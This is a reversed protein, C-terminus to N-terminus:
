NNEELQLLNMLPRLSPLARDYDTRLRTRCEHWDVFECRERQPLHLEDHLLPEILRLDWDYFEQTLAGIPLNPIPLQASKAERASAVILRWGRDHSILNLPAIRPLLRREYGRHALYTAVGLCLSVAVVVSVRVNQAFSICWLFSGLLIIVAPLLYRPGVLFGFLALANPDRWERASILSLFAFFAIVSFVILTSRALLAASSRGACDRIAFIVAIAAAVLVLIGFPWASQVVDATTPPNVIVGFVSLLAFPVYVGALGLAHGVGFHYALDHHPDHPTVLMLMCLGHATTLIVLIAFAATLNRQQNAFRDLKRLFTGILLILLVAGTGCVTAFGLGLAHMSAYSVAATLWPWKKEKPHEVMHLLLWLTLITLLMWELQLIHFPWAVYDTTLPNSLFALTMGAATMDSARLSFNLTQMARVLLCFLAAGVLALSSIQRCRWIAEDTGAFKTFFFEASFALPTYHGSASALWFQRLAAKQQAGPLHALLQYYGSDARLFTINTDYYLTGVAILSAVYVFAFRLRAAPLM